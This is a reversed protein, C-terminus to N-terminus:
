KTSQSFLHFSDSHPTKYILRNLNTLSAPSRNSGGRYTGYMLMSAPRAL